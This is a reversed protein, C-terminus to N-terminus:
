GRLGKLCCEPWASPLVEPLPPLLVAAPWCASLASPLVPAVLLPSLLLNCWPLLDQYSTWVMHMSAHLHMPCMPLRWWPGGRACCSGDIGSMCSGPVIAGPHRTSPLPCGVWVVSPPGSCCGLVGLHQGLAGAEKRRRWCPGLLQSSWQASGRLDHVARNDLILPSPRCGDQRASIV